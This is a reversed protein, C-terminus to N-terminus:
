KHELLSELTAGTTCLAELTDIDSIYANHNRAEVIADALPKSLSHMLDEGNNLMLPKCLQLLTEM